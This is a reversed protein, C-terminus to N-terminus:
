NKSTNENNILLNQTHHSVLKVTVRIAELINKFYNAWQLTSPRKNFNNVQSFEGSDCSFTNKM